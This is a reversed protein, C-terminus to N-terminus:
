KVHEVQTEHSAVCLGEVAAQRSLLFFGACVPCEFIIEDWRCDPGLFRRPPGSAGPM